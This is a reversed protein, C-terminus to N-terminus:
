GNGRESLGLQEMARRLVLAENEYTVARFADLDIFWKVCDFEADHYDISGAVPSMLYFHVIKDYEISGEDSIFSYNINGLTSEIRAVIGTEERVERLATQEITEGPDPTGKPLSWTALNIRGCLLFECRDGRLRYVVGGASMKHELKRTRPM